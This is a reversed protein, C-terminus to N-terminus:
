PNLKKLGPLNGIKLYQGVALRTFDTGTGAVLANNASISITGPQVQTKSLPKGFDTAIPSISGTPRGIVASGEPTILDEPPM